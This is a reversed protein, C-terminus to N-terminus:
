RRAREFSLGWVGSSIFTFKTVAGDAGREFRFAEGGTTQFLDRGSTELVYGSRGPVRVVLGSDRSLVRYTVDLETSTYDGAYEHLPAGSPSAPEVRQFKVPAQSPSTTECQRGDASFQFYLPVVGPIVFRDEAMPIMELSGRTALGRAWRLTQDRVFLRMFQGSGVPQYIGARTELQPGTLSIQARTPEPSSTVSAAPQTDGLCIDAIKRSFAPADFGGFNALVVITLGHEPYYITQTSFGPAGGGHQIAKVGRDAMTWVGLGYPLTTGNALVAPTTMKEILAKGGVKGDIFNREWRMLDTATSLIGTNGGSGPHGIEQRARRWKDGPRAYGTVRNRVLRQPDDDLRTHAMGLPKFINADLFDQLSMGSVRQVITALLVYGGNNYQFDTGPPFNLGRQAALRRVLIDNWPGSDEEPSGLAQHLTYVDRLGGTHNLLHRITLPAGYDPFEPLYKQVSDEISLRGQQELLLISMATFQKSVSAVQFVSAASIPVGLELNGSGVVREHLTTSGRAVAISLGPSDPKDWEACLQDIQEAVPRTSPVKARTADEALGIRALGAAFISAVVFVVVRPSGSRLYM